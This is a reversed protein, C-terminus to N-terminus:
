PVGGTKPKNDDEGWKGYKLATEFGAGIGSGLGTWRQAEQQGLQSQVGAAGGYAGAIGSAKSLADQYAQSSLQNGYQQQGVQNQYGQQRMSNIYQQRALEQQQAARLAAQQNEAQRLAIDQSRMGATNRAGVNAAEIAARQQANFQAIADAAAAKQAQEGFEQGRIQGALAGSQMMAELARQEANAQLGLGRLNEQQAAAQQNALQAALELGSGAIGRSQMQQQLAERAGRQRQSIDSQMQAMRFKDEATMGETGVESLRSLADLQARRLEPDTSIGQMASPGLERVIQAEPSYEPVIGYDALIAQQQEPSIFQPMDLPATDYTPTEIGLMADLAAQSYKQSQERYPEAERGGLWGGIIPAAVSGIIMGTVPDIM